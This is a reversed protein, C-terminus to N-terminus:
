HNAPDPHEYNVLELGNRTTLAQLFKPTITKELFLVSGDAFAFNTGNPHHGFLSQAKLNVAIDWDDLKTWTVDDDDNAEVVLITHALGDTIEQMKVAEAGPFITSPGRPTLYSTKGVSAPVRSGNPCTYVAPMRSIFSTNHPSDWPEDKHFEDYLAKQQLFPLINVRWSLLPKGEPSKSYAPPFTNHASRYKHM